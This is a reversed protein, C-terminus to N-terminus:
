ILASSIHFVEGKNQLEKQTTRLIKHDDDLLMVYDYENLKEKMKQSKIYARTESSYENNEKVIIIYNSEKVFPIYRKLWM